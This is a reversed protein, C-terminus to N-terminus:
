ISFFFFDFGFLFLVDSDFKFEIHIIAFLLYYIIVPSLPLNDSLPPHHATVIASENM